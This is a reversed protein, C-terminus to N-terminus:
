QLYDFRLGSSGEGEGHEKLRASWVFTRGDTWRARHWRRHILAGERPVEEDRVAAGARHELIKGQVGADSVETAAGPLASLALMPRGAVDRAAELPYWYDPVTSGLKYGDARAGNAASPPRLRQYRAFRDVPLGSADRTTREVAWALNAMEDRLLLLDETVRGTLHRGASHALVLPSAANLAGNGAEPDPSITFLQWPADLGDLAATAPIAIREGFTTTITLSQVVTISGVPLEIPVSLWDSAHQHIFALLALTGIDGGQAAQQELNVNGDEIEWYRPLPMGAYRVPTPLLRQSLLETTRLGTQESRVFSHWDIEGGLHEPARLRITTSTGPTTTSLAFTSELRDPLWCEGAPGGAPAPELWQLWERLAAEVAALLGPDTTPREPLEPLPGPGEGTPGLAAVVDNVVRRPDPVRDRWPRLRSQSAPELRAWEDDAIGLRHRPGLFAARAAAAGHDELTRLLELGAALLEDLTREAIPPIPEADVALQLPGAAPDANHTAPAPTEIQELLATDLTLEVEVASGADEAHLEGTQWQRALNWLPDLLRAALAGTAEAETRSTADPTLGLTAASM